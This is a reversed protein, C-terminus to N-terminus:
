KILLKGKHILGNDSKIIYYYIGNKIKHGGNNDLWWNINRQSKAQIRKVLTGDITYIWITSGDPVYDFVYYNQNNSTKSLLRFENYNDRPPFIGTNLVSLGEETAIWLLGSLTDFFLGNVKNSVLGSNDTSFSDILVGKGDLMRIGRNYSAAFVIPSAYGPAAAFAINRVQEGRLFVKTSDYFLSDKYFSCLGSETGVWVRDNKDPQKDIKVCLVASSISDNLYVKNMRSGASDFVAFYPSVKYGVCLNYDSDFAMDRVQDYQNMSGLGPRIMKGNGNFDMVAIGVGVVAAWIRRLGDIEVDSIATYDVAQNELISNNGDFRSWNGDTDLISIGGGWSSFVLNNSYSDEKISSIMNNTIASCNGTYVIDWKENQYRNVGFGSQYLQESGTTIWTRERSDVFPFQSQNIMPGPNQFKRWGIGDYMLVGAGSSGIWARCSGDGAICNYAGGFFLNDSFDLGTVPLPASNLAMGFGVDYRTDCVYSVDLAGSYVINGNYSTLSFVSFLPLLDWIDPDDLNEERLNNWNFKKRARIKNVNNFPKELVAFLTDNLVHVDRVYPNTTTDFVTFNQEVLERSTSFLSVGKNSGVVIYGAYYEMCTIEWDASAYSLYSKFNGNGDMRTLSGDGGGIWLNGSSDACLANCLVSALGSINDYKHIAYDSTNIRLLGGSTAAYIYGNSYLIDNVFDTSTHTTWTQQAWCVSVLILVALVTNKM